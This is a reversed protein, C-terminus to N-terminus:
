KNLKHRNTDWHSASQIKSITCFFPFSVFVFPRIGFLMSYIQSSYNIFPVIESKHSCNCKYLALPLFFRVSLYGKFRFPIGYCFAIFFHEMADPLHMINWLSRIFIIRTALNSNFHLTSALGYVFRYLLLMSAVDVVPFAATTVVADTFVAISQSCKCHLKEDRRKSCETQM